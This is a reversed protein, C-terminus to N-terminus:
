KKKTKPTPTPMVGGNRRMAERDKEAQRAAAEQKGDEVAEAQVAKLKVPNNRMSEPAADCGLSLFIFAVIFAAFLKSLM